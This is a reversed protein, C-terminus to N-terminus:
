TVGRAIFATYAQCVNLLLSRTGLSERSGGPTRKVDARIRQTEKQNKSWEMSSNRGKRIMDISEGRGGEVDDIANRWGYGVCRVEKKHVAAELVKQSLQPHYTSPSYKLLASQRHLACALAEPWEQPPNGQYVQYLCVM